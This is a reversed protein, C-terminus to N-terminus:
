DLKWVCFSEYNKGWVVVYSLRTSFQISFGFAFECRKNSYKKEFTAYLFTMERCIVNLSIAKNVLKIKLHRWNEFYRWKVSYVDGFPLKTSISTKKERESTNKPRQM